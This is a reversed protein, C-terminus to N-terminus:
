SFLGAFAAILLIIILIVVFHFVASFFSVLATLINATLVLIGNLIWVILCLTVPLLVTLICTLIIAGVATVIFLVPNILAQEQQATFVTIFLYISVVFCIIISIWIYTTYYVDTNELVSFRSCLFRITAIAVPICALVGACIMTILFVSKKLWHLISMATSTMRIQNLASSCTSFVDDALVTNQFSYRFNDNMTDSTLIKKAINTQEKLKKLIKRCHAIKMFAHYRNFEIISSIACFSSFIVPFLVYLIRYFSFYATTHLIIAPLSPQFITYLCGIIEFICPLWVIIHVTITHHPFHSFAIEYSKILENQDNLLKHTNM